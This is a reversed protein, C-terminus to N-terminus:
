PTLPGTCEACFSEPEAALLAMLPGFTSYFGASGLILWGGQVVAEGLSAQPLGRPHLGLFQERGAARAPM